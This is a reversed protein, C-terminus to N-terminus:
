TESADGIDCNGLPVARRVALICTLDPDQEADEHKVFQWCECTRIRRGLKLLGVNEQESNQRM